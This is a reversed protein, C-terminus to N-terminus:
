SRRPQVRLPAREVFALIRARATSSWKLYLAGLLAGALGGALDLALDTMTDDLPGMGGFSIPLSAFRREARSPRCLQDIRSVTDSHLNRPGMHGTASQCTICSSSWERRLEALRNL